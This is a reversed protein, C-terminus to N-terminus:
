LPTMRRARGHITESITLLYHTKRKESRVYFKGVVEKNRRM